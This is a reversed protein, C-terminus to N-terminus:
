ILAYRLFIMNFFAKFRGIRIHRKVQRTSNPITAQLPPFVPPAPGVGVFDIVLVAVLTGVCGAVTVGEGVDTGCDGKLTTFISMDTLGVVIAPNVQPVETVTV